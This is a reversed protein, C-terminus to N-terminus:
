KYINEKLQKIMEVTMSELDFDNQWNWDKRACSDDISAPWSDAIQQRFDPAYDITFDPYHKKIEEAIEAPTFSMAALNYSSRIKIDEAPAEMIGITAKIADDMYMMPLGSNESLFSTFKGETIAKHYIDVAYDTTGGGPPTSWSILGPYRLSRVDVGYQKHYYECWREGTQKSIGYVTSPEMITYQPTNERPTTPGFVAISSPWYIKKIKGAKALNLVHFLSNMNLDWAFAPNKEATASLLAAMLYVDTIKHKEVLFEIQNYDLANVVEFIGNNVVDIDLKRIDSAIVNEVGYVQRLKQTLETGIQGCAGIILIKTDM